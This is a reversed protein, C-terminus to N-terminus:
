SKAVGFAYLKGDWAPVFIRGNVVTAPAYIPGKIASSHWLERGTAADLAFETDGRGDGSYVVGNAVTPPAAAGWHRPPLEHQWALSLHCNRRAELAVLGHKFPGSNSDSTNVVYLMNTVPDWAPEGKFGEHNINALQLRQRHRAGLKNWASYVFLAGNKNEVAALTSPCGTPRFLVPTSGFDVDQGALKPSVSSLVAL